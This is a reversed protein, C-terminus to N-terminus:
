RKIFKLYVLVFILALLNFYLLFDILVTFESIGEFFPFDRLIDFTGYASVVIIPLIAAFILYINGVGSIKDILGKNSIKRKEQMNKSIKEIIEALNGTKLNQTVELMVEGLENKKNREVLHQMAGEMGITKAEEIVRSFEISISKYNSNAIQQVASEFSMGSKLMVEISILAHHLEDIYRM